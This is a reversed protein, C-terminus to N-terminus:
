YCQTYRDIPPMNPLVVELIDLNTKVHEVTEVSIQGGAFASMVHNNLMENYVANLPTILREFDVLRKIEDVLITSTGYFNTLYLNAAKLQSTISSVLLQREKMETLTNNLVESRKNEIELEKVYMERNRTLDSLQSKLHSVDQRALNVADSASSRRDKASEIGHYNVVRCVPKVIVQKVTKEVPQVVNQRWWSGIFRKGRCLRADEVDEQARKLQENALDLGHEKERFSIEARHLRLQTDQIGTNVRNISMQTRHIESEQQIIDSATNVLAEDVIDLILDSAHVAQSLNDSMTKAACHINKVLLTAAEDSDHLIEIDVNVLKNLIDNQLITYSKKYPPVIKSSTENRYWNMDVCNSIYFM